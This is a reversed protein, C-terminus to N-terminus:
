EGDETELCRELICVNSFHKQFNRFLVTVEFLFGNTGSPVSTPELKIAKLPSEGETKIESLEGAEVKLIPKSEEFYEGTSTNMDVEKKVFSITTGEMM